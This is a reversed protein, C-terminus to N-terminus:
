SRGLDAGDQGGIGHRHAQRRPQLRREVVKSSFGLELRERLDHWAGDLQLEAEPVYPWTKGAANDPLAELALLAATGADGSTRDGQAADALFHSQAIQTERLNAEAQEASAKARSAGALAEKKQEDAEQEAKFAFAQANQARVAAAL